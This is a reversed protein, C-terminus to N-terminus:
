QRGAASVEYMTLHSSVLPEGTLALWAQGAEIDFFAGSTVVSLEWFPAKRPNDGLLTGSAGALVGRTKLEKLLRARPVPTFVLRRGDSGVGVLAMLEGKKWVSVSLLRPTSGLNQAALTDLWARPDGINIQRALKERKILIDQAAWAEAQERIGDIARRQRENGASILAGPLIIATLVSAALIVDM